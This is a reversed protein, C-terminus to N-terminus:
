YCCHISFVQVDLLALWSFPPILSSYSKVKEEKKVLVNKGKTDQPFTEIGYEELLKYMRDQTPGIWKSTVDMKSCISGPRRSGQSGYGNWEEGDSRGGARDRHDM